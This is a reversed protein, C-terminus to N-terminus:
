IPIYQNKDNWDRSISLYVITEKTQSVDVFLDTANGAKMYLFTHTDTKFAIFDSIIHRM